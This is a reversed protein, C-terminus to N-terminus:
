QVGRAQSSHVIRRRVGRFRNRWIREFLFLLAATGALGLWFLQMRGAASAKDSQTARDALFATLAHVEKESLPQDRYLASMSPTPPASLWATLGQRGGLRNYVDTLNPGLAGGGLWGVGSVDHCSLCPPGGAELKADGRFLELGAQVQEATFPAQSESAAAEKSGGTSAGGSQGGIYDILAAAREPTMGPSPPMVMGQYQEVMARAAPDGSDIVAQPEVIFRILWSRERRDSVGALDPGALPGGGVTHCMACSRQFDEAPTQSWVLNPAISLALTAWVAGLGKM